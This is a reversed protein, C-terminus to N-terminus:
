EKFIGFMQTLYNIAMDHEQNEERIWCNADCKLIPLLRNKFVEIQM